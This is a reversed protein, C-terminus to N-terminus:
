YKMLRNKRYYKLLKKGLPTKKLTKENGIIILGYKARTLSVNLRRPCKVFGINGRRNSRVTSIIKIMSHIIEMQGRYPTIM